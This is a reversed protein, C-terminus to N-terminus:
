RKVFLFDGHDHDVGYIPSYEPSQLANNMVRGKVQSFLEHADLVGQNNKLASIFANAFVSHGNDGSDLVPELGGSTLATRSKKNVLRELAPSYEPSRPEVKLARTLTSRTFSGSFCSDAVVMVHKAPMAKIQKRVREVTLFSSSDDRGADSPIWYGEETVQDLEGHGGYYILVNHNEGVRNRINAIANFMESRTANELLDVEFGYDSRLIDSVVRGDKIPTRLDQFNSYSNNAIVLAYYKGFDINPVLLRDSAGAGFKKIKIEALRVYKGDPYADLYAEFMEVDDSDKISKWFEIEFDASESTGVVSAPEEERPSNEQVDALESQNPDCGVCWAGLSYTGSLKGSSFYQTGDYFEGDKHEGIYWDGNLWTYTGQGHRKGKKFGGVYKDGKWEGEGYSITGQGDFWGDKFEGFYNTGDAFTLTGYGHSNGAKYDGVYRDGNPWIEVGQGHNKGAKFEGIYKGGEVYTFTGQGDYQGDLFQGVYRNGNSFIATGQGHSKGAKFEGIYKGGDAYTYTGRGDRLGNKFDGVYKDGSGEGGSFTFIGQGNANNYKFEGVYKGIEYTRTGFCNNFYGSTPCSPLKSSSSSTSAIQNKRRKYEATALSQKLFGDGGKQVCSSQDMFIVGLDTACYVMKSASPSTEAIQTKTQSLRSVSAIAFPNDGRAAEAYLRKSKDLDRTVGKGSEYLYGLYAKADIDGSASAKNLWKLAESWDQQTGHGEAYHLGLIYQAKTHGKKAARTNLEISKALNKKGMRGTRAERAVIYMADYDGFPLYANVHWLQYHSLGEKQKVETWPPLGVWRKGDVSMFDWCHDLGMQKRADGDHWRKADKWAQYCFNEDSLKAKRFLPQYDVEAAAANSMTAALMAICAVGALTIKQGLSIRTM